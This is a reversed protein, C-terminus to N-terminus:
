IDSQFETLNKWYRVPMMNKQCAPNIREKISMNEFYQKWLKRYQLEDESVPSVEESTFHTIYWEEKYAVLAKSRKRDHIIFPENKYRDTFHKALFEVIDHDPEIVSYLIGGELESFRILGKMRHIECSVKKEIKQVEFVISNGHLMSISSGKIFGLRVYDLIKKEKEPESSMFARYIRRLDYGSIKNKIAEYVIDAKGSDTEVEIWSKMLNAQYEDKLFIGDAKENYYHLYICTLLGEFTGDYLYDVM